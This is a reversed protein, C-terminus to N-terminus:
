IFGKSKNRAFVSGASEVQALNPSGADGGDPLKLSIVGKSVNLLYDMASKYRVAAQHKEDLVNDYLYFRALDCALRTLIDPVEVLPLSVRGSIYGNITATADEISQNVVDPVISGQSGDKDSLQTIEDLGFRKVMDDQTCYM